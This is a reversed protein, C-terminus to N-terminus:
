KKGLLGGLNGILGDLGGSGGSFSKVMSNVTNMDINGLKGKQLIKLIEDLGGSTIKSVLDQSLGSKLLNGSVLQSLQGFMANSQNPTNKNFLDVINNLDLKGSAAQSAFFGSVAKVITDTAGSAQTGSLGYKGLLANIEGAHEKMLNELM